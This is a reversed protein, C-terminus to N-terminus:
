WPPGMFGEPGVGLVPWSAGLWLKGPSAGFSGSTARSSRESKRSTPRAMASKRMISSPRDCGPPARPRCPCSCAAPDAQCAEAAFPATRTRGPPPAGPGPAGPTRRRAAAAAGPLPGADREVDQALVGVRDDGVLDGLPLGVARQARAQAPADQVPHGALEAAVLDREAVVAVVGELGQQQVQEEAALQRGHGAPQTLSSPAWTTM